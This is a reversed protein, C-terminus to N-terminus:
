GQRSFDTPRSTFSIDIVIDVDDPLEYESRNSEVALFVQRKLGKKAIFWRRAEVLSDELMECTLHVTVIPAGLQRLVWQGLEEENMLENLVAM